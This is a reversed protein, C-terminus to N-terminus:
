SGAGCCPVDYNPSRNGSAVTNGAKDRINKLEIHMTKHEPMPAQMGLIVKKGHVEVSRPRFSNTGCIVEYNNPQTATMDDLEENFTLEVISQVHMLMDTIYPPETDSNAPNAQPEPIAASKEQEFTIQAPILSKQAGISVAIEIAEPKDDNVSFVAQGDKFELTEPTIKASVGKKAQTDKILWQAKQLGHYDKVKAGYGDLAAVKGEASKGCVGQGNITLSFQEVESAFGIVQFSFFHLLAVSYSVLSVKPLLNKISGNRETNM